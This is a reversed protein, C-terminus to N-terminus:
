SGENELSDITYAQENIESPKIRKGNYMLVINYKEINEKLEDSLWSLVQHNTIKDKWVEESTVNSIFSEKAERFYDYADVDVQRKFDDIVTIEFDEVVGDYYRLQKSLKITITNVDSIDIFMDDTEEQIVQELMSTNLVFPVNSESETIEELENHTLSIYDDASLMEMIHQLFEHVANTEKAELKLNLNFKKM